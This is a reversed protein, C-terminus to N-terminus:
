DTCRSAVLQVTRSNFGPSPLMQRLSGFREQPGGLRRHLQYQTEKRSAFGCPRTTLWGGGDLASTLSLTSSSGRQAVSNGDGCECFGAM